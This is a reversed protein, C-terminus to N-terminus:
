IIGVTRAKEVIPEFYKEEAKKRAKIAEDKKKFRKNLVTVGKLKLSAVWVGRTRDFYVGKVGSKNRKNMKQSAILKIDTGKEFNFRPRNKEFAKKTIIPQRNLSTEKLLCGCSRVRRKSNKTNLLSGRVTKKNGCICQCRWYVERHVTDAREIVKLRGFQRGTLDILKPM